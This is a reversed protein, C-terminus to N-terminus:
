LTKMTNLNTSTKKKKQLKWMPVFCFFYKMVNMGLHISTVYLPTRSVIISIM